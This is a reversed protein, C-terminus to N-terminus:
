EVTLLAQLLVSNTKQGSNESIFQILVWCDHINVGLCCSCHELELNLLQSSNVQWFVQHLDKKLEEYVKERLPNFERATRQQPLKNSKLNRSTQQRLYWYLNAILALYWSKVSIFFFFIFDKEVQTKHLFINQLLYSYLRFIVLWKIKVSTLELREACLWRSWLFHLLHLHM